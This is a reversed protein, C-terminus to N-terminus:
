ELNVIQHQRSLAPPRSASSSRAARDYPHPKTSLARSSAPQWVTSDAQLTTRHRTCDIQICHCVSLHKQSTQCVTLLAFSINTYHTDRCSCSLRTGERGMEM